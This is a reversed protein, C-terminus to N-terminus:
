TTLERGDDGRGDSRGCATFSRPLAVRTSSIVSLSKSRVSSYIFRRTLLASSRIPQPRRRPRGSAMSGEAINQRGSRAAQVMQDHTRSRKEVFRNCFIVTGDYVIEAVQFSKLNRCGGHSPILGPRPKKSDSLDSMDSEDSRETGRAEELLSRALRVDLVIRNLLSRVSDVDRPVGGPLSEKSLKAIWDLKELARSISDRRSM